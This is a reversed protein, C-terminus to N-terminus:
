AAQKRTVRIFGHLRQALAYDGEVQVRGQLAATLLNQEGRAIRVFDAEDCRIVCDAPATSETIAVTEDRVELRWIGLGEVDVRYSGSIGHLRPDPRRDERRSQAEALISRATDTPM